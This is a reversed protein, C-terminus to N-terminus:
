REVGVKRINDYRGDALYLVTGDHNLVMDYIDGIRASSGSGNTNGRKGYTGAIVYVKFTHNGSSDQSQLDIKLLTHPIESTHQM